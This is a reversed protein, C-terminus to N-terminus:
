HHLTAGKAPAHISVHSHRTMPLPSPRRGRRPPTSRFMVAAFGKAGTNTAGKAPAHISVQMQKRFVALVAQDGGERPTSRFM